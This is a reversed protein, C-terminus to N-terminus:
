GFGQVYLRVGKGQHESWDFAAFAESASDSINLLKTESVPVTRRQQIM